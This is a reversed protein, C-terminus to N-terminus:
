SSASHTSFTLTYIARLKSVAAAMSYREVITARAAEGLCQRLCHDELLRAIACELASADLVPVVVGNVGDSVIQPIAGVPTVVCALGHSMAELLAVPMAEMHSPLVFISSQAYIRDLAEPDLWGCLDVHTELISGRIKEALRQGVDDGAMVLTFSPTRAAIARSADLLEPIGKDAVLRGAYVVRASDMGHTPASPIEVANPVVWISCGPAIALLPERLAESLVIVASSKELVRRVARQRGQREGIYELFGGGHVQLIVPIRLSHALSVVIRKRPFSNWSATHVHVGAPRNRIFIWVLRVLAAPFAVLRAVGRGGWSTAVAELQYHDALDSNLLAAIMRAIGGHASVSPGVHVVRSSGM